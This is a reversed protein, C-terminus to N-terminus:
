SSGGIFIIKTKTLKERWNNPLQDAILWSLAILYLVASPLQHLVTQTELKDFSVLISFLLFVWAPLSVAYRIAADYWSLLTNDQRVLKIKWARMGLTQGGHTWFWAFFLYIVTIFYFSLLPNFQASGKGGTFALSIFSAIILVAFLLLGDYAMAAFRRLINASTFNTMRTNCCLM